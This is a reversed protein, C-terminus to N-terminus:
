LRERVIGGLMVLREEHASGLRDPGFPGLEDASEVLVGWREDFGEALRTRIERVPGQRHEGLHRSPLMQVLQAEYAGVLPEAVWSFGDEESQVIEGELSSM